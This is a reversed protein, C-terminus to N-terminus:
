LTISLLRGGARQQNFEIQHIQELFYIRCYLNGYYSLGSVSGDQGMVQAPIRWTLKCHGTRRSEALYDQYIFERFERLDDVAWGGLTHELRTPLFTETVSCIFPIIRLSNQKSTYM